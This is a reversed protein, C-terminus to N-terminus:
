PFEQPPVCHDPQSLLISNDRSAVHIRRGHAIVPGSHRGSVPKMSVLKIDVFGVELHDDPAPDTPHFLYSHQMHQAVSVDFPLRLVKELAVRGDM